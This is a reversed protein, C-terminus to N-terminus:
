RQKLNQRIKLIGDRLAFTESLIQEIEASKNTFHPDDMLQNCYGIAENIWGLCRKLVARVYTVERQPNYYSESGLHARLYNSTLNLRIPLQDCALEKPESSWGFCNSSFEFLRISRDVVTDTLESAFENRWGEPPDECPEFDDDFDNEFDEDSNAMEELAKDWSMVFAEKCTANPDDKYKETVENFADLYLDTEKFHQEWESEDLGSPEIDADPADPSHSVPIMQAMFDRMSNLNALKQAEEYDEDMVWAHESIQLEFDATEIVVRGNFESFWELYLTNKWVFPIKRKNIYYETLEEESITPVRCKRSATMDGVIGTQDTNLSLGNESAKPKPNEFELRTGALDRWCDGNLTLILPEDRGALWIKGTTTGEVTNDIFGHEVEADLRWAMPFLTRHIM